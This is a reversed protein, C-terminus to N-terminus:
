AKKREELAWGLLYGASLLFLGGLTTDCFPYKEVISIPLWCLTMLSVCIKWGDASRFAVYLGCILVELAIAIAALMAPLGWRLGIELYSNHAHPVIKLVASVDETGFLLLKWDSKMAQLANGWITSRSNMTKLDQLLDGQGSGAGQVTGNNDVYMGASMEREGSLYEQNMRSNNWKFLGEMGALIVAALALVILLQKWFKGGRQKLMALLLVGGGYGATVLMVMRGHTLVIFVAQMAALALLVGRLWKKQTLFCFGVCIALAMFYMTATINPHWLISLRSGSWSVVAELAQPVRDLLRLVTLADLWVVAALTLGAGVKLATQKEEDRCCAALPFLLLYRSLMLGPGQVQYGFLFVHAYRIFEIWAAMAIALALHWGAAKTKPLPLACAAFAVSLVTLCPDAWQRFWTLSADGAAIATCHILMALCGCLLALKGLLRQKEPKIEAM